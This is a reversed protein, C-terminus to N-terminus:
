FLAPNTEAQRINLEPEKTVILRVRQSKTPTPRNISEANDIFIPAYIDQYKCIANIIDLGANIKGADNLDSFPVGDVTAECTEVENGDVQIDFMKFRVFSFLANIKAEVKSVRAKTFEAITFELGELRSLEDKGARLEAQLEELRKKNAEMDERKSLRIAIDTIKKSIEGAKTQLESTDRKEPEAKLSEQLTAIKSRIDAIKKDANIAPTTDPETPATIFLPLLEIEAIRAEAKTIKAGTEDASQQYHEKNKNNAHGQRKNETIAAANQEQLKAVKARHNSRINAQIEEIREIDYQHGCTPCTFDSASMEPEEDYKAVLAISNNLLQTYEGLLRNRKETCQEVQNLYHTKESKLHSVERTLSSHEDLLARRDAVQTRYEKKVDQEIEFERDRLDHRLLSIDRQIKARANSQANESASADSLQTMISKHEQSLRDREAALAFWDEPTFKKADAEKEKIQGPLDKIEKKVRAKDAKIQKKFEAMTKDTLSALLATFEENGAAVEADSVGGAMRILMERQLEWNQSSFYLPNTILKFIDESCIESIKEKWEDVSCPVNNYLRTEEHGEFTDETDGKHRVWKEEYRRTLTVPEGNVTMDIEVEHPIRPIAKGNSDVTKIGFRKRDLRDKGFFVWTVGDFISSKGLGNDGSIDINKVQFNITLDRLGKFNKFSIEKIIIEKM